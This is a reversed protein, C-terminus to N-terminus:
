SEHTQVQLFGNERGELDRCDDITACWVSVVNEECNEVCNEKGKRKIGRM